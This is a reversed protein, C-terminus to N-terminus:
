GLLLQRAQLCTMLQVSVCACAALGQLAEAQWQLAPAM